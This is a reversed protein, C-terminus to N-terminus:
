LKPLYPDTEHEHQAQMQVKSNDVPQPACIKTNSARILHITYIFMSNDVLDRIHEGKNVPLCGSALEIHQLFHLM